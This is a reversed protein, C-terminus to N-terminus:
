LFIIQLSNLEMLDRVKSIGHGVENRLNMHDIHGLYAEVAKCFDTSFIKNVKSERLLSGLLQQRFTDKTFVFTSNGNNRMVNRILEEVQFVLIHISSIYDKSYHREIGRKIIEKRDSSLWSNDIIENITTPQIKYNKLAQTILVTKLSMTLSIKGLSEFEIRKEQGSYSPSIHSESQRTVPLISSITKGYERKYEEEPSSYSPILYKSLIKLIKKHDTEGNVLRKIDNEVDENKIEVGISITKFESQSKIHAETLREKLEEILKPDVIQKDQMYRLAAEYFSLKVLNNSPTDAMKIKSELTKRKLHESEATNGTKKYITSAMEYWSQALHPNQVALSEGIIESDKAITILYSRDYSDLLRWLDDAILKVLLRYKKSKDKSKLEEICTKLSSFFKDKIITSNNIAKALKYAMSFAFSPVRYFDDADKTLSHEMATEIFLDICKNAFEINKTATWLYYNIRASTLSPPSQTLRETFYVVTKNDYNWFSPKSNINSLVYAWKDLVTGVREMTNNLLMWETLLLSKSKENRGEKFQKVAVGLIREKKFPYYEELKISDFEKLVSLIKEEM